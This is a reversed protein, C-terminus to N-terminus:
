SQRMADDFATLAAKAGDGISTVIQKYPADTVDGAAYVGPQSTRGFHDVVIEGRPNIDLSDIFLSTEPLYGIQIFVGALPILTEKGDARDAVRLGTVHHGDGQIEKVRTSLHVTVNPLSDLRTILVPDARLVDLFEYLDVKSCIASLDIAAEVGANGGGVVAVPQDKFMPGDCHPCFAVGRGTYEKEGPVGLTRPRSGTAIMIQPARFIDGSRTTASKLTPALDVGTIEKGEFLTAGYASMNQRLEAALRTGTTTMTTILNDIAGTLNVAGGIEKAVVAVSKNKRATYIAAAAAAPGGGIILMDFDRVVPAATEVPESGFKEELLRIIDPLTTRGVTLLQDNAFVSPVAKVGRGDAEDPVAAGDTIRSTIRPNYLAILNVAQAVDPCNTCTLSVFVDIAVPGKIAKIRAQETEDPLNKGLGDANLIAMLLTNFEHGGPVGRFTIGVPKADKILILLPAGAGEEVQLTLLPSTACIETALELMRPGATSATDAVVKLTLPSQLRKFIEAVQTILSKDLM